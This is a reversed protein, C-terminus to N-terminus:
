VLMLNMAEKEFFWDSVKKNIASLKIKSLTDGVTKGGKIVDNKITKADNLLGTLNTTYDRGYETAVDKIIKLSQKVIDGALAM